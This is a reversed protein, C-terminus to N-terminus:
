FDAEPEDPAATETIADMEAIFFLAARLQEAEEPRLAAPKGEFHTALKRLDALQLDAIRTGKATHIAYPDFPSPAAPKSQPEKPEVVEGDVVDGGYLLDAVEANRAQVQAAFEPDAAAREAEERRARANQALAVRADDPLDAGAGEWDEPAIVRRLQEIEARTPTGFKRRYADVLARKQVKWAKSRGSPAFYQSGVEEPGAVGLGTVELVQRAETPTFGADILARLNPIDAKMMFRCRYAMATEALGEAKLEAATLRDFQPETHEGKFRRVWEVILPYGHQFNITGRKDKWIQIEHPNLPDLGQALARRTAYIIEQDTMAPTNSTAKVWPACAKVATVYAALMREPIAISNSSSEEYEVIDTNM